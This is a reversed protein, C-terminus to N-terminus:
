YLHSLCHSSCRSHIHLMHLPSRRSSAIRLLHIEILSLGLTLLYQFQPLRKPLLSSSPRSNTQVEDSCLASLSKPSLFCWLELMACVFVACPHIFRTRFDTEGTSARSRDPGLNGVRGSWHQYFICHGRWRSCRMIYQGWGMVNRKKSYRPPSDM